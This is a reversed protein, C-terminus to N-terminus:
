GISGCTLTHRAAAARAGARRRPAARVAARRRASPVARGPDAHRSTDLRAPWRPLWPMSAVRDRRPALRDAILAATGSPATASLGSAISGPRASGRWADLTTDPTRATPPAVTRGDPAILTAFVEGRHAEIWVAIAEDPHQTGRSALGAGRVDTVPAVVARRRAGAGADHRDRHAPRYVVRARRGRRLRDVRRLAAGAEDLIAILEAPLREAHTRTATARREVEPDDEDHRVVAVSGAARVLRCWSAEFGDTM